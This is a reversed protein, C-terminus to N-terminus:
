KKEIRASLETLAMQYAAELHTFLVNDNQHGPIRLENDTYSASIGPQILQRADSEVSAGILTDALYRLLPPNRVLIPGTLYTGLLNKYHIGESNSKGNTTNNSQGSAKGSTKGSTKSDTEDSAGPGMELLFPRPINGQQGIGARNVFGILKEPLFSASCVCDGSVRTNGQVTEFDLLGITEYRNGDSGTVAKGFLEHSSGTALVFMGAEIRGTLATKHPTLYKMCARASRETGSGIYIFDYESLDIEDGASKKEVVAAYGRSILERALIDVNAWDGYLNMLDYYLHLIRIEPSAKALEPALVSARNEQCAANMGTLLVGRDRREDDAPAATASTGGGGKSLDFVKLLKAKDAFCTLAYVQNSCCQEVQERLDDVNSIRRYKAPDISTMAFRAMLENSYRGVLLIEKVSDVSLIEFDIDWLWSTESTYYKRSISDVM